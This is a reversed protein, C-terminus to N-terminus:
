FTTVSPTRPRRPLITPHALAVNARLKAAAEAAPFPGSFDGQTVDANRVFRTYDIVQLHGLSNIFSSESFLMGVENELFWVWFISLQGGGMDVKAAILNLTEYPGLGFHPNGVIQGMVEGDADAVWDPVPLPVGNPDPLTDNWVWKDCKWDYLADASGKTNLCADARLLYPTNPLASGGNGILISQQKSNIDETWLYCVRTRYPFVEFSGLTWGEIYLQYPWSPIVVEAPMPTFGPLLEEIERLTCKASALPDAMAQHIDRQTIMPNSDSTVGQAAGEGISYILKQSSESVTNPRFTPINAIYYSGLIPLLLPNKPEMTLIRFLHGTGRRFAYWNQQDTWHDCDIGTPNTDTCMLPYKNGWMLPYQSGPQIRDSFFTPSPIRLTTTVPGYINKAVGQPTSDIWYWQRSEGKDIRNTFVFDFYTLDRTLYLRARLWSETPTWSCEIHGVVLQSYNKLCSSSDGFPSLLVTATWSEPLIPVSTPKNAEWQSQVYAGSPIPNITSM